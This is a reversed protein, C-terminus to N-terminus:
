KDESTLSAFSRTRVASCLQPTDSGAFRMVILRDGPLTRFVPVPNSRGIATANSLAIPTNSSIHLLCFTNTPSSFRLPCSRGTFPIRGTTDSPHLSPTWVSKMIGISLRASPSSTLSALTYPKEERSATIAYRRPPAYSFGANVISDASDTEPTSKASTFPCGNRRRAASTAALPICLRRITPGGPAPFVIIESRSAVM